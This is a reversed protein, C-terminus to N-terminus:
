NVLTCKPYLSNLGAKMMWLRYFKGHENLHLRIIRLKIAVESLKEKRRKAMQDSGATRVRINSINKLPQNCRTISPGHPNMVLM